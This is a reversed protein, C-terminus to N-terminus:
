LGLSEINGPVDFSVSDALNLSADFVEDATIVSNVGSSPTVAVDFQGIAEIELDYRIDEGSTCFLCCLNCCPDLILEYPELVLENSGPIVESNSFDGLEATLDNNELGVSPIGDLGPSFSTM